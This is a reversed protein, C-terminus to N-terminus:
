KYPARPELVLHQWVTAAASRRAVLTVLDEKKNKAVLYVARRRVERAFKTVKEQSM